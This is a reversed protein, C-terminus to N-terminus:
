YSPEANMLLMCCFLFFSSRRLLLVLLLMLLLEQDTGIQKRNSIRLVPFEFTTQM